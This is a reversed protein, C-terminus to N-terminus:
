HSRYGTGFDNDYVGKLTKIEGILTARDTRKNFRTYPNLLKLEDLLEENTKPRLMYRQCRYTFNIDEITVEDNSLSDDILVFGEDIEPM